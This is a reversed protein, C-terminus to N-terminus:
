QVTYTDMHFLSLNLCKQLRSLALHSFLWTSVKAAMMLNRPLLPYLNLTSALRVMAAAINQQSTPKEGGPHARSWWLIGQCKLQM